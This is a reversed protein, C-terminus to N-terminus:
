PSHSRQSSLVSNRKSLTNLYILVSLLLACTKLYTLAEIWSCSLPVRGIQPPVWHCSLALARGGRLWAPLLVLDWSEPAKAHWTGTCTAETNRQREPAAKTHNIKFLKWIVGKFVEPNPASNHVKHHKQCSSTDKLAAPAAAFTVPTKMHEM